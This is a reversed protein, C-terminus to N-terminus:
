REGPPPAAPGAPELQALVAERSTGHARLVADFHAGYVDLVALLLDSTAVASARRAIAVRAAHDAVATVADREPEPEREREPSAAAGGARDDDGQDRGSASDALPGESVGLARLTAGARGHLRLLRLWRAAEARPTRAFPLATSALGLVIAADPALGIAARDSPRRASPPAGSRASGSPALGSSRSGSPASGPTTPNSPAAASASPASDAVAAASPASGPTTTPPPPPPPTKV